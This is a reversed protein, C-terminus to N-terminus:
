EKQGKSITVTQAEGDWAVDYGLIESVFRVPIFTRNDTIIPPNLLTYRLTGYRYDEVTVLDNWIQLNIVIGETTLTIKEKAGDWSVVAGMEEVLGRLPILTSGNTIYPAVDMTKTFPAELGKTVEIEPSGIKLVYSVRDKNIREERAGSSEYFTIDTASVRQAHYKIIEIDIFRATLEGDFFITKESINQELTVHKVEQYNLGDLSAHIKVELWLGHMDKSQRPMYHMEKITYVEGMDIEAIVPTDLVTETQWITNDLGDFAKYLENGNWNTGSYFVEFGDSNIPYIANERAYAPYDSLAVTEFTSLPALCFFEAMTGYGGTGELVELKIRKVKTNALLRVNQLRGLSGSDSINFDVPEVIQIYEGTDSDSAWFSMRQIDGSHNDTRPLFVFESIETLEPLTIEIYFPPNDKGVIKGSEVIYNSHWYTKENGDLILQAVSIQSSAVARWGERPLANELTYGEASVPIIVSLIMLISFALALLKKM